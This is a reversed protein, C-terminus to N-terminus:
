MTMDPAASSNQRSLSKNAIKATLLSAQLEKVLKQLRQMERELSEVYAVTKQSAAQVINNKVRLEDLEQRLAKTMRDTTLFPRDDDEEEDEEETKWDNVIDVVARNQLVPPASMMHSRRDQVQRSSSPALAIADKTEKVFEVSLSKAKSVNGATSPRPKQGKEEITPQNEPLKALQYLESPRGQLIPLDKGQLYNKIGEKKVGTMAAYHMSKHLSEDKMKKLRDEREKYREVIKRTLMLSSGQEMPNIPLSDRPIVIGAFIKDTDGADVNMMRKDVFTTQRKVEVGAIRQRVEYKGKQANDLVKEVQVIYEFLKVIEFEAMRLQESKKTRYANFQEVFSILAKDKEELWFNYQSRIDALQDVRSKDMAKMQTEFQARLPTEFDKKEKGTKASLKTYEMLSNPVLALNDQAKKLMDQNHIIMHELEGSYKQELFVKLENVAREKEEILTKCEFEKHRLGTIMKINEVNLHQIERGQEEIVGKKEKMKHSYATNSDKLEKIQKLLKDITTSNVMGNDKRTERSSEIVDEDTSPTIGLTGLDYKQGNIIIGGDTTLFSTMGMKKFVNLLANPHIKSGSSANPNKSPSASFDPNSDMRNIKTRLMGLEDMLKKIKRDKDEDDKLYNVRPNNRVNRCRNAFQLSSLCEEYYSEKPHITAIVTTYSNGGLSNQLVRTLKSDRYPIHSSELSPDLASIVKGLATLSSNIHLAEKMRIGVSESKKLRECGALDVLNLMGVMSQDTARDRQLVSITFVTHSRSSVANMKTEHTARLKLGISILNMVEESSNVPLLSLDKVFVNGQNDERIEYNMTIYQDQVEKLSGTLSQTSKKFAPAFYPNGRKGALSEFIESTKETLAANNPNNESNCTTALFAKGLDRIQDNYIELFSCVMAVETAASKKALCQFLYEVSRPIVGRVDSGEGFMTYTKGSGTQGYAFCCSNYGNLVHDVQQRCANNFVEEQKTDTWFVQDFQFSVEGYRKNAPDPDRISIKRVDDSKNIFDTLKDENELPRARVYVRINSNTDEVGTYDSIVRHQM